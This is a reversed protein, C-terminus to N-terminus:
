KICPGKVNDIAEWFAKSLKTTYRKQKNSFTRRHNYFRSKFETESYSYYCKPTDNGDTSISAKYIIIKKCLQRNVSINKSASINRNHRSLIAAMNANCNYSIKVTSKNCIKHLRHRFPFHKELLLSLRALM